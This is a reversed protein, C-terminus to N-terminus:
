RTFSLIEAHSLGEPFPTVARAEGTVIQDYEPLYNRYIFRAYAAEGAVVAFEGLRHGQPGDSVELVAACSREVFQRRNLNAGAYGAMEAFITKVRTRNQPPFAEIFEGWIQNYNFRIRIEPKDPVIEMWDRLSPLDEPLIIGADIHEYQSANVWIIFGTGDMLTAEDGEWEQDIQLITGVPVNIQCTQNDENMYQVLVDEVMAVFFPGEPQATVEAEHENLLMAVIAEDDSHDVETLDEAVPAPEPLEEQEDEEALLDGILDAESMALDEPLASGISQEMDAPEEEELRTSETILDAIQQMDGEAMRVAERLQDIREESTADEGFAEYYLNRVEPDPLLHEIQDRAADLVTVEVEVGDEILGTLLDEIPMQIDGEVDAYVEGDGLVDEGAEIQGVEHDDMYIQVNEEANVSADNFAEQTETMFASQNGGMEMMTTAYKQLDEEGDDMAIQSLGTLRDGRMFAATREKKAVVNLARQEMVPLLSRAEEPDITKVSYPYYVRCPKSQNMRWARRSAQSMVYLSYHMEYFAITPYALMNLGVEVLKANTIMVNFGRSAQENIHKSRKRSNINSGLTFPRANQCHLKILAELRPRIDYTDSQAVYIAVGRNQAIEGNVMRILWREKSSIRTDGFAPARTVLKRVRVKGKLAKGHSDKVWDVDPNLDTERRGELYENWRDKTWTTRHFFDRGRWWSNPLGMLGQFKAMAFSHDGTEEIYSELKDEIAGYLAREEQDMPIPVPIQTFPPLAVGMDNMNFRITCPMAEKVLHPAAGPSKKHLSTKPMPNQTPTGDADIHTTTVTFETVGMERQWRDQTEKDMMDPYQQRVRESFIYLLLFVTDATGGFLTGTLGLVSHAENALRTMIIARQADINKYQHLEDAAFLGIRGRFKKIIFSALDISRGNTWKEHAGVMYEEDPLKGDIIDPLPVIPAGKAWYEADARPYQEQIRQKRAEIVDETDILDKLKQRYDERTLREISSTTRHQQWIPSYRHYYRDHAVRQSRIDMLAKSVPHRYDVRENYIIQGDWRLQVEGNEDLRPSRRVVPIHTQSEETITRGAWYGNDIRTDYLIKKETYEQVAQEILSADGQFKRHKGTPSGSVFRKGKGSGDSATEFGDEELYSTRRNSTVTMERGTEPDHAVTSFRMVGGSERKFNRMLLPAHIWGESEKATSEPVILVNLRSALEWDADSSSDPNRKIRKMADRSENCAALCANVDEMNIGLFVTCNPVSLSFEGIWNEDTATTPPVLLVVAEGPWLAAKQIGDKRMRRLSYRYDFTVCRMLHAVTAAMISKGVGMEGELIVGKMEALSAVVAAVIKMQNPALEDVGRVRVLDIFQKFYEFRPDNELDYIPPFEQEMFDMLAEGHQTVFTELQDDEKISAVVGDESVTTITTTPLNKFTEITKRLERTGDDRVHQINVSRTIYQTKARVLVDHSETEVHIADGLAGSAIVIGSQSRRPTVIPRLKPPEGVPQFLDDCDLQVGEERACEVMVEESVIRPRFSIRGTRPVFLMDPWKYPPAEVSELSPVEGSNIWDINAQALRSPGFNITDANVPGIAIVEGDENRTAKLKVFRVDYTGVQFGEEDTIPTQRVEVPNKEDWWWQRFHNKFAGDALDNVYRPYEGLKCVFLYLKRGEVPEEMYYTDVFESVHWMWELLNRSQTLKDEFLVNIMYGGRQVWEKVLRLMNLEKLPNNMDYPPYNYSLAFSRPTVTSDHM